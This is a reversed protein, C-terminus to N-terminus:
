VVRLEGVRLRGIDIRLWRPLFRPEDAAPANGLPKVQLTGIVLEPLSLEGLLLPYARMSVKVNTAALELTRSTVVLSTLTVGENLRGSIGVADVDLASVRDLLDVLTRLGSESRVLWTVAISAALLLGAACILIGKILKGRNM